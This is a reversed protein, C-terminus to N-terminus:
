CGAYFFLRARERVTALIILVLLVFLLMAIPSLLLHNIDALRVFLHSVPILILVEFVLILLLGFSLIVVIKIIDYAVSTHM